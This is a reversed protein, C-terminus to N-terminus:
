PHLFDQQPLYRLCDGEAFVRNVFYTQSGYQVNMCDAKIEPDATGDFEFAGSCMTTTVNISWSDSHADLNLILDSPQLSFKRSMYDNIEDFCYNGSPSPIQQMDALAPIGLLSSILVLASLAKM